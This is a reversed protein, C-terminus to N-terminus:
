CPACWCHGNRCVRTRGPPCFRGAGGCAALTVSPTFNKLAAAGRSTQAQSALSGAILMAAAAALIMTTKRM